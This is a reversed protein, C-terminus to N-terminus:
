SDNSAGILYSMIRMMTTEGKKAPAKIAYEILACISTQIGDECPKNATLKLVQLFHENPTFAQYLSNQAGYYDKLMSLFNHGDYQGLFKGRKIDYRLEQHATATRYFYIYDMEEVVSRKFAFSIVGNAIEVKELCIRYEELWAADFSLMRGAVNLRAVENVSIDKFTLQYKVAGDVMMSEVHAQIQHTPSYIDRKKLFSTGELVDDLVGNGLMLSHIAATAHKFQRMIHLKFDEQNM